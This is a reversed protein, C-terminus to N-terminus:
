HSSTSLDVPPFLPDALFYCLLMFIRVFFITAPLFLFRVRNSGTGMMPNFLYLAVKACFIPAVKRENLPATENFSFITETRSKEERAKKTM